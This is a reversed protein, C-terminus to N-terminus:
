AALEEFCWTRYEDWRSRWKEIKTVNVFMSFPKKYDYEVSGNVVRPNSLTLKLIERKEDKTMVKFLEGARQAVEMLRIGDLMYTTSARSFASTAKHRWNSSSKEPPPKGFEEALMDYVEQPKLDDYESHTTALIGHKIANRSVVPNQKSPKDSKTQNENM